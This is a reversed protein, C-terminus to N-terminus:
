EEGLATELQLSLNRTLLKCVLILASCSYGNQVVDTWCPALVTGCETGPRESQFMQQQLATFYLAINLVTGEVESV